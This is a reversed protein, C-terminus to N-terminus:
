IKFLYSFSGISFQTSQLVSAVRAVPIDPLFSETAGRSGTFRPGAQGQFPSLTCRLSWAPLLSGQGDGDPGQPFGTVERGVRGKFLRAVQERAKFIRATIGPM